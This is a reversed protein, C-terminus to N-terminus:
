VDPTKEQGGDMLTWVPLGSRAIGKAKSNRGVSESVITSFGEAHTSERLATVESQGLIM